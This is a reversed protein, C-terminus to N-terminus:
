FIFIKCLPPDPSSTKMFYQFKQFVELSWGGGGCVYVGVCGAYFGDQLPTHTTTTTTTAPTKARFYVTRLRIHQWNREFRMVSLEAFNLFYTSM